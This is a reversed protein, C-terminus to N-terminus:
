GEDTWRVFRRLCPNRNFGEGQGTDKEYDDEVCHPLLRRQDTVLCDLEPFGFIGQVCMIVQDCSERYRREDRMRKPSM